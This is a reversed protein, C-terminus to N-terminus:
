NAGHDFDSREMCFNSREMIYNNHIFAEYFITYPTDPQLGDLHIQKIARTAATLSSQAISWSNGHNIPPYGM